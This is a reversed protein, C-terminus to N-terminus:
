SNAANPSRTSAPAASLSDAGPAGKALDSLSLELLLLQENLFGLYYDGMRLMDYNPHPENHWQLLWPLLDALGALLPALKEQPWGEQLQM